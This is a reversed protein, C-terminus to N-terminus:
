TSRWSIPRVCCRASGDRCGRCCIGNRQRSVEGIYLRHAGLAENAFVELESPAAASAGRAVWGTVGGVLLAAVVAAAALTAWSRGNRMIRDLALRDPVPENIVGGFRARIAEVQARWAAVRAADEPHNALWQEVAERRDTPLEGDVYVHLEGETV